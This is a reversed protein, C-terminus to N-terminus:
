GGIRILGGGLSSKESSAQWLVEVRIAAPLDPVTLDAFILYLSGDRYAAALSDL